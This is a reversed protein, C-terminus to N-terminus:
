KMGKKSWTQELVERTEDAIEKEHISCYIHGKPIIANCRICRNKVFPKAVTKGIKILIAIGFFALSIFFSIKSLFFLKTNSGKSYIDNAIWILLSIIFLVAALRAM